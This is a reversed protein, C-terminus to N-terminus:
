KILNRKDYKEILRNYEEDDFAKIMERVTLGDPHVANLDLGYQLLLELIPVAQDNISGIARLVPAGGKTDTVNPNAGRELLIRVAETNHTLCAVQLYSIGMEDQFNVNEVKRLDRLLEESEENGIRWFMEDRGLNKRM